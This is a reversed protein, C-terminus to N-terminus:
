RGQGKNKKFYLKSNKRNSQKTKAHIKPRRKKTTVSLM